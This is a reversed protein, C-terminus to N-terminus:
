SGAQVPAVADLPSGDRPRRWVALLSRGLRYRLLPDMWRSGGVLIRDWFRINGLTPLSRRLLFRNAASALLGLSDLMILRERVLGPPALRVLADRTYRRRHGIARDFESVLWPWAPALVVLVGGPRLLRAARAVEGKDDEIHELVDLYLVADFAPAAALDAVTGRLVDCPPEIQRSRVAETIRAALAPDPELCVWRGQGAGRLVRANSGIGAGVELVDGRLYGAVHGSWYRKWRPAEAFVELESGIYSGPEAL